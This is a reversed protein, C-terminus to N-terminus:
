TLMESLIHRTQVQVSLEELHFSEKRDPFLLFVLCLGPNNLLCFIFVFTLMKCCVLSFRRDGVLKKAISSFIFPCYTSLQSSEVWDFVKKGKKRCGAETQNGRFVFSFSFIAVWM